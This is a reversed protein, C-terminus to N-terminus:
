VDRTALRQSQIYKNFMNIQVYRIVTNIICTHRSVTTYLTCYISRIHADLSLLNNDRTAFTCHLLTYLFRYCHTIKDNAFMSALSLCGKVHTTDPLVPQPFVSNTKRSKSLRCSMDRVRLLNQVAVTFILFSKIIIRPNFKM